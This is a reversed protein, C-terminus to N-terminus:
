IEAARWQRREVELQQKDWFVGENHRHLSFAPPAGGIVDAFVLGTGPQQNTTPTRGAHLLSEVLLNCFQLPVHLM